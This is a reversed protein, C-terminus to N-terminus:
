LKNSCNYTGVTPWDLRRPIGISDFLVQALLMMSTMLAALTFGINDIAYLIYFTSSLNFLFSTVFSLLLFSRFLHQAKEPLQKTGLFNNIFM